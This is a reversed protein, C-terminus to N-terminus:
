LSGYAENFQGSTIVITKNRQIRVAHMLMFRDIHPLLLKIFVVSTGKKLIGTRYIRALKHVNNFRNCM